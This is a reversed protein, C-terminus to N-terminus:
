VVRQFTLPGLPAADMRPRFGVVRRERMFFSPILLAYRQVLKKLVREEFFSFSM